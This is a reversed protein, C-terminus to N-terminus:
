RVTFTGSKRQVFLAPSRLRFSDAGSPASERLYLEVIAM